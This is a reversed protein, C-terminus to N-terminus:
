DKSKLRYREMFKSIQSSKGQSITAPENEIKTIKTIKQKEKTKVAYLNQNNGLGFFAENLLNNYKQKFEIDHAYLYDAIKEILGSHDNACFNRIRSFKGNATIELTKKGPTKIEIDDFKIPAKTAADYIMDFMFDQMAEYDLIWKPYQTDTPNIECEAIYASKGPTNEWSNKMTQIHNQAGQYTTFFYYGNSQGGLAGRSPNFYGSQCIHQFEAEDIPTIIHYLVIKDSKLQRNGQHFQITKDSM